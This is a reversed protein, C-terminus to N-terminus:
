AEGLIQRWILSVALKQVLESMLDGKAEAVPFGANLCDGSSTPYARACHMPAEFLSAHTVAVDDVSQTQNHGFM